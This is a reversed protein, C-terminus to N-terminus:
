ILFLETIRWKAYTAEEQQAKVPEGDVSCFSGASSKIGFNEPTNLKLGTEQLSCWKYYVCSILAAGM